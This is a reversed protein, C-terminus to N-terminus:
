AKRYDSDDYQNQNFRGIMGSYNEPNQEGFGLQGFRRGHNGRIYDNGNNNNTYEHDYRSNRNSSGTLGRGYFSRIPEYPKKTKIYVPVKVPIEVPYKEYKYVPVKRYIPYPEYIIRQKKNPPCKENLSRHYHDNHKFLAGSVLDLVAIIFILVTFKRLEM